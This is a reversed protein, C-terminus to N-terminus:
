EHLEGQMRILLYVTKVQASTGSIPRSEIAKLLTGKADIRVLRPVDFITQQSNQIVTLYSPNGDARLEGTWVMANNFKKEPTPLKYPASGVCLDLLGPLAESFVMVEHMM